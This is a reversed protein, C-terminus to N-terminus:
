WVGLCLLWPFVTGPIIHVCLLPPANSTVAKTWDARLHQALDKGGRQDWLGHDAGPCSACHAYSGYCLRLVCLLRQLMAAIFSCM